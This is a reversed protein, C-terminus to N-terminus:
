RLWDRLDYIIVKQNKLLAILENRDIRKWLAEKIDESVRSLIDHEIRNQFQKEFSDQNIGRSIYTNQKNVVLSVFSRWAHMDINSSKYDFMSKKEYLYKTVEHGSNLFIGLRTKVGFEEELGQVTEGNIPIFACEYDDGYTKDEILPVKIWKEAGGEFSLDIKREDRNLVVKGIQKEKLAIMHLLSKPEYDCLLNKSEITHENTITNVLGSLSISSRAEKLLREAADIMNSESMNITEYRQLTNASVLKRENGDEFLIANIYVESLIDEKEIRLERQRDNKLDVLQRVLIRAEFAIWSMSRGKVKFDEIQKEIYNFEIFLEYYNIKGRM